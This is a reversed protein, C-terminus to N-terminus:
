IFGVLICWIRISNSKTRRNQFLRTKHVLYHKERMVRCVTTTYFLLDGTSQNELFRDRDLANTCPFKKHNGVYKAKHASSPEIASVFVRNELM